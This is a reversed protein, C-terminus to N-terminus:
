NRKQVFLIILYVGLATSCAYLLAFVHNDQPAIFWRAAFGIIILGTFFYGTRYEDGAISKGRVYRVFSPLSVGTLVMWVLISVVRSITLLTM